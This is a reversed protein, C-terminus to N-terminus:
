REQNLILDAVAQAGGVLFAAREARDVFGRETAAVYVRIAIEEGREQPTKAPLLFLHAHVGGPLAMQTFREWGDPTTAPADTRAYVVLFGEAGGRVEYTGVDIPNVGLFSAVSSRLYSGAGNRGLRGRLSV